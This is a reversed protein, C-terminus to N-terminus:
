AYFENKKVKQLGLDYFEFKTKGKVFGYVGKSITIGNTQALAELRAAINIGCFFTVTDNALFVLIIDIRKKLLRSVKM